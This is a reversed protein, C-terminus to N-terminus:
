HKKAYKIPKVTKNNLLLPKTPRFATFLIGVAGLTIMADALNFVAFYSLDFYDIVFGYSLRDYFNSTGGFLMLALFYIRQGLKGGKKLMLVVIAVLLTFVTIELVWGSLPISFAINENKTLGFSFFNGLLPFKEDPRAYLAQWKLWRDAFVFFVVVLYFTIIKKEHGAAM